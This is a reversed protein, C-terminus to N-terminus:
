SMGTWAGDYADVGLFEMEVVYGEYVLYIGSATALAVLLPM